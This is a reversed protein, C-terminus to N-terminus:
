TITSGCKRCYRIGKDNVTGCKMCRIKSSSDFESDTIKHRTTRVRYSGSMRAGVGKLSVKSGPKLRDTGGDSESVIVPKRCNPCIKTGPELTRRCKPCRM